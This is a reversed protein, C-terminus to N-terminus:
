RPVTCDFRSTTALNYVSFFEIAHAPLAASHKQHAECGRVHSQLNMEVVM